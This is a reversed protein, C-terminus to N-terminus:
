GHLKQRLTNVHNRDNALSVSQCPVLKRMVLPLHPLRYGLVLDGHELLGLVGVSPGRKGERHSGTVALSLLELSHIGPPGKITRCCYKEKERTKTTVSEQNKTRCSLIRGMSVKSLEANQQDSSVEPGEEFRGVCGFVPGEAAVEAFLEGRGIQRKILTTRM